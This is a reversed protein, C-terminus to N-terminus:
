YSRRRKPIMFTFFLGWHLIVLENLNCLKHMYLKNSNIATQAIIASLVAFFLDVQLKCDTFVVNERLFIRTQSILM